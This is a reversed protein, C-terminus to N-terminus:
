NTAGPLVTFPGLSENLGRFAARYERRGTRRLAKTNVITQSLQRANRFGVLVCASRSRGLCYGIAAQALSKRSQGFTRKVDRLRDHLRTLGDRRFWAKRNRHDGQGFSPPRTPDYKDLLLGQALPKNILVGVGRDDAWKFIDMEPDDFTPSLVNYRITIIDPQVREAIRMFRRYQARPPVRNGRMKDPLYEHPGRLGIHRIRGQEVFGRMADIAGHLYRDRTGFDMHHFSYLDVYDTRLAALSNELQHEMQKPVYGHKASGSTYGVKTSVIVSGRTVSRIFHGLLAESRGYVPATDFLNAGQRHAYELGRLAAARDLRGWGSALGLNQAPGGIGWCGIGVHSAYIGTAGLRRRPIM